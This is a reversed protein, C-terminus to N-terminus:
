SDADAVFLFAGETEIELLEISGAYALMAAKL